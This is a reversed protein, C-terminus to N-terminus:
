SHVQRSSYRPMDVQQGGDTHHLTNHQHTCTYQHRRTRISHQQQHQQQLRVVKSLLEVVISAVIEVVERQKPEWVLLKALALKRFVLCCAVSGCLCGLVSTCAVYAFRM